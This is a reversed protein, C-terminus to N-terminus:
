EGGKEDDIFAYDPFTDVVEKAKEASMNVGTSDIIPLSTDSPVVQNGRRTRVVAKGESKYEERSPREAQAPAADNQTQSEGGQPGEPPDQSAGQPKAM